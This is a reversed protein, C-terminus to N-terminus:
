QLRSSATGRSEISPSEFESGDVTEFRLRYWVTESPANDDHFSMTAAPALAPALTEWPGVDAAAREVHVTRFSTVGRPDLRWHLMVGNAGRGAVLESVAVPTTGSANRLVVVRGATADSYLVDALADGNVDAIVAAQANGAGLDLRVTGDSAQGGAFVMVQ